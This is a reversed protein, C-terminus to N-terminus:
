CFAVNLSYGGGGGGWCRREKGGTLVILLISREFQLGGAGGLGRM